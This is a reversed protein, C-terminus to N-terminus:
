KNLGFIEKISQWLGKKEPILEQDNKPDMDFSFDVVLALHDSAVKSDSRLLGNAELQEESMTRTNLIFNNKARMVFDTYVIYDLRGPSYGEGNNQWSFAVGESVHVPYLDMLTTGDWDPAFDAGFKDENQIDGTLLTALQQSEGVLNMDGLIVVPTNPILDIQGGPSYADRLFAITSDAQLQRNKDAGCCSWHSNMVLIQRAEDIQVLLAMIRSGSRGWLTWNGVIPFRSATNIHGEMETTFWHKGEGLPIISDMYAVTSKNTSKWMEQFCVIDGQLAQQIRSHAPARDEVFIGDHLSNQSVIRIDAASYKALPRTVWPPGPDDSLEVSISSTGDPMRDAGAESQEDRFFFRFSQLPTAPDTNTFVDARNIAIEFDTATLTPLTILGIEGHTIATSDNGSFVAGDKDGFRWALEAGMDDISLGTSADNDGDIYLTLKNKKSLGFEEAMILRLFLRASDSTVSVSLFDFGMVGDGPPDVYIPEINKWDDSRGDILIPQAYILTCLLVLFLTKM